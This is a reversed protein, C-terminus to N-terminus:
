PGILGHFAVMFAGVNGTTKVTLMVTQRTSGRFGIAASAIYPIRLADFEIRVEHFTGVKCMEHQFVILWYEKVSVRYRVSIHINPFHYLASDIFPGALGRFLALIGSPVALTM